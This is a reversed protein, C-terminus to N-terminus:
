AGGSVATSAALVSSANVWTGDDDRAAVGYGGVAGVSSRCPRCRMTAVLGTAFHHESETERPKWRVVRGEAFTARTKSPTGYRASRM